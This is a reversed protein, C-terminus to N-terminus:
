GVKVTQKIMKGFVKMILDMQGFKNVKVKGRTRLKTGSFVTISDFTKRVM